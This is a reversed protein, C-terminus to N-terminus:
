FFSTVTEQLPGRYVDERQMMGRLQALSSFCVILSVIQSVITGDSSANAAGWTPFVQQVGTLTDGAVLFL